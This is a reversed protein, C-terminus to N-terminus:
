GSTWFVSLCHLNQTCSVESAPNGDLGRITVDAKVATSSITYNLLYQQRWDLMSDVLAQAAAQDFSYEVTVGAAQGQGDEGFFISVKGGPYQSAGKYDPTGGTQASVAESGTDIWSNANPQGITSFDQYAPFNVIHLSPAFDIVRNQLLDAAAQQMQTNNVADGAFNSPAGGILWYNYGTTMNSSSSSGCGGCALLLLGIALFTLLSRM